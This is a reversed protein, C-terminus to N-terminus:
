RANKKKKATLAIYLVLIYVVTVVAAVAVIVLSIHLTIDEPQPTTGDTDSKLAPDTYKIVPTDEGKVYPTYQEQQQWDSLNGSPMVLTGSIQKAEDSRNDIVTGAGSISSFLGGNLIVKGGEEVEHAMYYDKTKYCEVGSEFTVTAGSAVRITSQAYEQLIIINDFTVDSAIRLTAAPYIKLVGTNPDTKNATDMYNKGGYRATILVEGGVDPFTYTMNESPQPVYLKGSAVITGGGRVASVAGGSDLTGFNAKPNEPTKGDNGDSARPDRISVYCVNEEAAVPLAAWAFVACLLLSCVALVRATKNKENM